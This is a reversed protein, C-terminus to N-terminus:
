YGNKSLIYDLIYSCIFIFMLNIYNILALKIPILGFLIVIMTVFFGVIVSLLLVSLLIFNIRKLIKIYNSM